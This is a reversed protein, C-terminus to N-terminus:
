KKVVALINDVVKDIPQSADILVAGKERAYKSVGKNWKLQRALDKPDKGFDHSTRSLIRNKLTDDNVQLIFIKSFYHEFERQNMAGGCVFTLDRGQDGLEKDITDKNWLWNLQSKEQTPKGTKPDGYYGFVHDAEISHYGRSSLEECVATKGTGSIGEILYNIKAM